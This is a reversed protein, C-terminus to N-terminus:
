GKERVMLCSLGLWEVLYLLRFDVVSGIYQGTLWFRCSGNERKMQTENTNPLNETKLNSSIGYEDTSSM